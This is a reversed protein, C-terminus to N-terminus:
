NLINKMNKIEAWTVYPNTPNFYFTHQRWKDRKNCRLTVHNKDFSSALGWWIFSVLVFSKLNRDWKQGNLPQYHLCTQPFVLKCPMMLYETVQYTVVKIFSSKISDYKEAEQTSNRSSKKQYMSAFMNIILQNLWVSLFFQAEPPTETFNWSPFLM